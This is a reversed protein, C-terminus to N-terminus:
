NRGGRVVKGKQYGYTQKRLRHSQKTFLNMKLVYKKQYILLSKNAYSAQIFNVLLCALTPICVIKLYVFSFLFDQVIHLIIVDAM